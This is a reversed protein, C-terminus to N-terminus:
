VKLGKGKFKIGYYIWFGVSNCFKSFKLFFPWTVKTVTCAFTWHSLLRPLKGVCTRCTHHCQGCSILESDFYTGPECDPICSGRALSTFLSSARKWTQGLIRILNHDTRLRKECSFIFTILACHKTDSFTGLSIFSVFSDQLWSSTRPCERGRCGPAPFTM